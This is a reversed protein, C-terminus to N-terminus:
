NTHRDSWFCYNRHQLASMTMVSSSILFPLRSAKSRCGPYVCSKENAFTSVRERKNVLNTSWITLNWYIILLLTGVPHKRGGSDESARRESSHIMQPFQLSHLKPSETFSPCASNSGKRIWTEVSGLETSTSFSYETLSALRDACSLQCLDPHRLKREQKQLLPGQRNLVCDVMSSLIVSADPSM